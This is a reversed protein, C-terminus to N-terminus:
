QLFEALAYTRFQEPAFSLRYLDLATGIGMMPWYHREHRNGNAHLLQLLLDNETTDRSLDRLRKPTTAYYAGARLKASTLWDFEDYFWVASDADVDQPLAQGDHLVVAGPLAAAIDTAMGEPCVYVVRRGQEILARALACLRTTKGTQRPSIDLYAINM